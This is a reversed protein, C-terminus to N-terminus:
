ITVVDRSTHIVMGCGTCRWSHRQVVQHAADHHVGINYGGLRNIRRAHARFRSGHSGDGHELYLHVHILEHLIVAELERSGLARLIPWSIKILRRRYFTRGSTSVMANEWVIDFARLRCGFYTLALRDRLAQLGPRVAIPPVAIEAELPARSSRTNVM